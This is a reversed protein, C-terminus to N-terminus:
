LFSGPWNHSRNKGRKIEDENNVQAFTCVIQFSARKESFFAGFRAIKAICICSCQFCSVYLDTRGNKEEEHM